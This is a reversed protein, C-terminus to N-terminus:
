KTQAKRTRSAIQRERWLEREASRVANEYVYADRLRMTYCARCFGSSHDAPFRACSPCLPRDPGDAVALVRGLDVSGALVSARLAALHPEAAMAGRPVGLLAGRKEGPRRLSVRLRSAMSEVARPSKGLLAAVRTVGLHANERLLERERTTWAAM